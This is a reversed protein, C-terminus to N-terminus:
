HLRYSFSVGVVAPSDWAAGIGPANALVQTLYRKDTVNDGYLAASWQGSPSTWDARVGLTGYGGERFQNAPDFYFSSTYYYNASLALVSGGPLEATYTPGFNGTFRPARLMDFGSANTTGNGYIGFAAGCTAFNLCEPNTPAGLYSTYIAHTYNMGLNFRWASDLAYDMSGDFGWIRATAANNVLSLPIGNITAYTEVQLDKYDYFYSAFDATVKPGSFKYGVEYAKLSEPMIPATQGGGVNYIAAKYGTSFSAYTSSERNIQYRVVVRPTGRNSSLTPYRILSPAATRYFGESQEDHTYRFGGTLFWKKALQYTLNFYGAFSRNTTASGALFHLPLLTPLTAPQVFFGQGYTPWIDRNNLIFIGATWQLRTGPKSNVLFEQTFTHDLVHINLNLARFSSYDLSEYTEGDEALYQTYSTLTGVGFDYKGTLQTVNTHQLMVVRENDYAVQNPSSTIITGPVFRGFLQIVGGSSYGTLDLNSPDHTGTHAYRLLFSLNDTPTWLLGARVAYDKYAGADRGGNAINHIWGDSKTYLGGIDFALDHTIGTTFYTEYKQTNFSSYDARAMFDTRHSPASTTVLIAGGTTNRGFLTGQPGKLVQISKINLLQFDNSEPNPSYFGDIYVGVNSGSGSLALDTGVGRITPQAFTGAYDFRLGPTVSAIDGLTTVGAKTLQSASLYTITIPVNQIPEARRQATVVIEQLSAAPAPASSQATSSSASASTPASTQAQAGAPAAAVLAAIVAATILSPRVHELDRIPM